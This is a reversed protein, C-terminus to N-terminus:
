DHSIVTAWINTHDIPHKHGADDDRPRGQIDSGDRTRNSDHEPPLCEFLDDIGEDTKVALALLSRKDHYTLKSMPEDYRM